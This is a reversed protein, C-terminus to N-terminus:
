PFSGVTAIYPRASSDICPDLTSNALGSVVGAGGGEKTQGTKGEEARGQAYVGICVSLLNTHIIGLVAALGVRLHDPLGHGLLCAVDIPLCCENARRNTKAAFLVKKVM